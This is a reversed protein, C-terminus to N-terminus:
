VVIKDDDSIVKKEYKTLVANKNFEYLLPAAICISSYTGVITGLLMAYTFGAISEPGFILMSVLVFIVTMSTYLSRTMTENISTNIITELPTGTGGYTKLNSRIRDFIVITDNISYGLITLLATIFFTDIQFDRLFNGTMVYVGSAILVDHFLTIITIIAFTWSSIGWVTGSFAYTIYLAIGIIAIILTLRATSRIYDGFSAGINTYGSQTIDGLKSYNEWLADRYAIKESELLKEDDIRNFGTEVIFSNEGTIKYVNINNIYDSQATQKAIDTVEDLSFAYTDYSYESQIGGTMDIGYNLPILFLCVLSFLALFGSVLFSIKRFSLIDFNM